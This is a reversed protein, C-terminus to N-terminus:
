LLGILIVIPSEQKDMTKRYKEYMHIIDAVDLITIKDPYIVRAAMFPIEHEEMKDFAVDLDLLLNEFKFLDEGAEFAAVFDDLIPHPFFKILHRLFEMFVVSPPVSIFDNFKNWVFLIDNIHVEDYELFDYVSLAKDHGFREFYKRIRMCPAVGESIKDLTYRGTLGDPM